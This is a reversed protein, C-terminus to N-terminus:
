STINQIIKAYRRVWIDSDELFLLYNLYYDLQILKYLWYQQNFIFNSIPFSSNKQSYTIFDIGKPINQNFTNENLNLLPYKFKHIFIIQYNPLDLANLTKGDSAIFLFFTKQFKSFKKPFNHYFYSLFLPEKKTWLKAGQFCMKYYNHSIFANRELYKYSKAIFTFIKFPTKQYNFFTVNRSVDILEYGIERYILKKLKESSVPYIITSITSNKEKKLNFYATNKLVDGTVSCVMRNRSFLDDKQCAGWYRNWGHLLVPINKEQSFYQELLLSGYGLLFLQNNM